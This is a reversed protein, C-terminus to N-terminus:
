VSNCRATGRWTSRFSRSPLALAEPPNPGLPAISSSDERRPVSILLDLVPNEHSVAEVILSTAAEFFFVAPL